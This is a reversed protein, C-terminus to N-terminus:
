GAIVVQVTWAFQGLCLVAVFGMTFVRPIWQVLLAGLPAGFLVVPAAALWNWLLQETMAGRAASVVTGVLSDYAMLVISTAIAIRLDVRYVLVLVLYAVTDIGVGTLAAAVGGVLGAAFCILRDARATLNPAPRPVTLSRFRVLTHVGFVAWIGAFVLKVWAENLLPLIWRTALPLSLTSGLAAWLLMRPLLPRGSCLIFLSASTMGISQIAFSFTRGLTTPEGFWLVLVPFGVSGGGLPTSGAVYSGLLMSLAIPWHAVVQSWAGLVFVLASWACLFWLVWVAFPAYRRM